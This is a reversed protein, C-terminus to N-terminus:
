RVGEAIADALARVVQARSMGDCHFVIEAERYLAEREALLVAVREKLRGGALM